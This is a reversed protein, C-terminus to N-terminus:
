GRGAIRVPADSIQGDIESAAAPAPWSKLTRLTQHAVSLVANRPPNFPDGIFPILHPDNYPNAPSLSDEAPPAWPAALRFFMDGRYGAPANARWRRRASLIDEDPFITEHLQHAM